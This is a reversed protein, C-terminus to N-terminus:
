DTIQSFIEWNGKFETRVVGNGDTTQIDYDYYGAALGTTTAASIADITFDWAGAGTANLTVGTTDSDLTLVTVGALKIKCRVRALTSDAETETFNCAPYTDGQTIGPWNWFLPTLDLAM